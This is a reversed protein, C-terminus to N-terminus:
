ARRTNASVTNQEKEFEALLTTLRYVEPDPLGTDDQFAARRHAIASTYEDTPYDFAASVAWAEWCRKAKAANCNLKDGLQKYFNDNSM